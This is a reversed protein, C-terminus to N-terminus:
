RKRSQEQVLWLIGAITKGDCITGRKVMAVAKSLPVFRVEIVEDEEPEAAGERLGRALYLAMTEAVFGPSAWFRLVQKWRSARYGTEELLERKAAVLEAEGEDIRGAPLEWM